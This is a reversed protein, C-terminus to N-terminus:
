HYELPKKTKKRDSKRSLYEKRTKTFKSHEKSDGKRFAYTSQDTRVQYSDHYVLLFIRILVHTKTTPFRNSCTRFVLSFNYAKNELAYNYDNCHM